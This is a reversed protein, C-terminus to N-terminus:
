FLHHFLNHIHVNLLSMAERKPLEIIELEEDSIDPNEIRVSKSDQMSVVRRQITVTWSARYPGAKATGPLTRKRVM